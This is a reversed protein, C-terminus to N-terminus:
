APLLLGYLTFILTIFGLVAWMTRNGFFIQTGDLNSFPLMNYFAYYAAMKSLYEWGPFYSVFSILLLVVVGSAGILGNHLDTMESYSYFGFRKAARHKLARTEYTLFTMLKFTGLTIASIVVPLIVGFPLENRFKSGPKFGFRQFYWIRHEVNADLSYAVAKKVVVPIVVVVFSYVFVAMLSVADGVMVFGLGAVVFMLLVAILVHATENSM